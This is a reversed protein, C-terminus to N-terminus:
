GLKDQSVHLNQQREIIENAQYKALDFNGNIIYEQLTSMARARNPYDVAGKEIEGLLLQLVHPVGERLNHQREVIENAQYKALDFNGNTIYEQLTSMSRARKPYDVAGREIEGLLLQLELPIESQLNHQREVIENAQYRALDFNGNSIYEQLTSMARTRKPYDVAGKEIEELLLQLDHPIDLKLNQQREVIENAQYRALDFNGNTIYEQLTSMARTRKPYDVAGKEIEELLLQLDHPIGLKLNQQREVIENAQYRALDFNGNAIYERLTHIARSRQPYDIADNEIKDIVEKLELPLNGGKLEVQEIETSLNSQIVRM